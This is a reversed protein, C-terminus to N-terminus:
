PRSRLLGPLPALNVRLLEDSTDGHEDAPTLAAAHVVIEASAVLDDLPESAVDRRVYAVADHPVDARPSFAAEDVRDTATVAAGDLALARVIAAGFFGAAGTVLVRPGAM